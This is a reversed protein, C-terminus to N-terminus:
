PRLRPQTHLPSAARRGPTAALARSLWLGTDNTSVTRLRAFADFRQDPAAGLGRLLKILDGLRPKLLGTLTDLVTGVTRCRLWYLPWTLYALVAAWVVAVVFPRVVLYCLVLLAALLLALSLRRMWPAAQDNM